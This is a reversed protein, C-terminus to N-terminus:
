NLNKLLVVSGILKVTKCLPKLVEGFSTFAAASTDAITKLKCAFLCRFEAGIVERSGKSDTWMRVASEYVFVSSGDRFFAANRVQKRIELLM